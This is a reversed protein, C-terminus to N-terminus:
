KKRNETIQVQTSDTLNIQGNTVVKDGAKLGSVVEIMDGAERGITITRRRAINKDVVYVFPNKLSEVLANRPIQLVSDASTKTFDAYVITGSKLLNGPNPIIVEVLYNHANDGKPNLFNVTGEWTKEPMRPTTIRVRDGVSLEYAESESVKVWVKLRSIDMITALPAGPNAFEGLEINKMVIIGDISAKILGDNIQKKMQEVQIKTNEYNYRMDNLNVETVANGKYLDDLRKFDQELKKETLQASQLGLEKLRTDTKGLIQGARVNMGLELTLEIVQGPASVMVDAERFPMANGSKLLSANLPLVAAQAINVPVATNVEPVEAKKADIEKKNTFLRYAILGTILVLATITVIRKKM